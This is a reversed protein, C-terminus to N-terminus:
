WWMDENLMSSFEVAVARAKPAASGTSRSSLVSQDTLAHKWELRESRAKERGKEECVCVRQM